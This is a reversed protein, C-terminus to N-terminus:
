PIMSTPVSYMRLQMQFSYAFPVIYRSVSDCKLSWDELYKIDVLSSKDHSSSKDSSSSSSISGSSGSSSGATSLLTSSSLDSVRPDSTSPTASSPVLNPSSSRVPKAGLDKPRKTGGRGRSTGSGGAGPLPALSSARWALFFCFLFALSLSPLMTNPVLLHSNLSTYTICVTTAPRFPWIYRM